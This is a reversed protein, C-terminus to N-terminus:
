QNKMARRIEALRDRGAQERAALEDEVTRGAPTESALEEAGVSTTYRNEIQDRVYDFTPVGADTYDGAPVQIPPTPTAPPTPAPEEVLEADIPDQQEPM